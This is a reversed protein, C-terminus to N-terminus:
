VEIAEHSRYITPDCPHKGLLAAVTWVLPTLRRASSVLRSADRKGILQPRTTTEESATM